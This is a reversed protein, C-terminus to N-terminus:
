TVARQPDNPRLTKDQIALARRYLAEAEGHRGQAEHVNALDNLALAYNTHNVDFRAKIAAELKQAQVLAGAYDGSDLLANYRQELAGIDAPQAWAPPPLCWALLALVAALAPIGFDQRPTM